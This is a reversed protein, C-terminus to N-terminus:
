DPHNQLLLFWVQNRKGQSDIRELLFSSVKDWRVSTKTLLDQFHTQLVEEQLPVDQSSTKSEEKSATKCIRRSSTIRRPLHYNNHEM